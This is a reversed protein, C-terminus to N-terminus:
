PDSPSFFCRLIKWASLINKLDTNVYMYCSSDADRDCSNASYQTFQKNLHSNHQWKGRRVCLLFIESSLDSFFVVVGWFGGYPCWGQMLLSLQTSHPRQQSNKSCPLSSSHGGFHVCILGRLHDQKLMGATQRDPSCLFNSYIWGGNHHLALRASIACVGARPTCLPDCGASSQKAEAALFRIFQLNWALAICRSFFHWVSM